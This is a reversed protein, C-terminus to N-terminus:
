NKFSVEVLILKDFDFDRELLGYAFYCLFAM